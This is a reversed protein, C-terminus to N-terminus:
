RARLTSSTWARSSLCSSSADFATYRARHKTYFPLKADNTTEPQKVACLEDGKPRLVRFYYLAVVALSLALCVFLILSHLFLRDLDVGSGSVLDLGLAWFSIMECSSAGSASAESSDTLVVMSTAVAMAAAGMKTSRMTVANARARAANSNNEHQTLTQAHSQPHGRLSAVEAELAQVRSRLAANEKELLEMHDKRRQRSEAALIRNRERKKKLKMQRVKEASPPAGASFTSSDATGSSSYGSTSSGSSRTSAASTFAPRASPLGASSSEPAPALTDMVHMEPSLDASLEEFPPINPLGIDESLASPDPFDFGDLLFTNDTDAFPSTSTSMSGESDSYTGTLDDAFASAVFSESEDALLTQLWDEGHEM